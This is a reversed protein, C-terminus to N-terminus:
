FQVFFRNLVTEFTLFTRNPTKEPPPQWWGLVLCCCNTMDNRVTTKYEGRCDPPENTPLVQGYLCKATNGGLNTYGGPCNLKLTIGHVVPLAPESFVLNWAEIMGACEVELITKSNSRNYISYKQLM